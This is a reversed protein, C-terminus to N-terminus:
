GGVEIVRSTTYHSTEFVYQGNCSETDNGGNIFKLCSDLGGNKDMPIYRHLISADSPEYTPSIISDVEKIFCRDIFLSNLLFNMYFTLVLIAKHKLYRHDPTPAVFTLSLM